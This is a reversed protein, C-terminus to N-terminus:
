KKGFYDFFKEFFGKNEFSIKTKNTNIKENYAQFEFASDCVDRKKEEIISMESIFSFEEGFTLLNESLVRSGNGIFFLKIHENLNQNKILPCNLFLLEVIEELRSNIIKKVLIENQFENKLKSNKSFKLKQAEAQRYDIKLIKSIDKTVHEGGVHTNNLYLLRSNEFILLSSKKLGIDIFSSYGHIGTKKILGLSKIFSICFVNKIVIHKKLLFNKYYDFIKKDITIIKIEFIAKYVEKSFNDLKDIVVGDLINKTNIIHLIEKDKSNKKYIQECEELLLDLDKNTLIKKDYVKEISFDLSSISPSDILLIIENVHKSIKKEASLILNFILDENTLKKEKTHNLKEEYFIEQSLIQKDYVSLKAYTSGIELISVLSTIESM